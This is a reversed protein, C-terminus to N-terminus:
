YGSMGNSSYGGMCNVDFPFSAAVGPSAGGGLRALPTGGRLGFLIPAAGGLL